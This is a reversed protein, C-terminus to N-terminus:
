QEMEGPEPLILVPETDDRLQQILPRFALELSDLARAVVTLEDSEINVIRARATTGWDTM